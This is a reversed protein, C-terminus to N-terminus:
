SGHGDLHPIPSRGPKPNHTSPEQNDFNYLKQVGAFTIGVLSQKKAMAYLDKWEKASPARSLMEQTGIAVRILEFFLHDIM